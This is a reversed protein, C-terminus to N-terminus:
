HSPRQENMKRVLADVVGAKPGGPMRSIAACEARYDATRGMRSLLVAEQLRTYLLLSRVPIGLNIRPHFITDFYTSPKTEDTDLQELVVQYQKLLPLADNQNSAYAKSARYGLGMTSVEERYWLTQARQFFWLATGGGILIILCASIGIRRYFGISM